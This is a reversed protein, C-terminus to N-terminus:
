GIAERILLNIFEFPPYGMDETLRPYLSSETMGPVTNIENFYINGSVDVFFDLRAMSRLNIAESLTRAMDEIKLLLDTKAVGHSIKPGRGGYKREYSYFKRESRVIGSASLRREGGVFILACEVELDIDVLREILVRRGGRAASIYAPIFDEEKLIPSAGISSGLTAPKIFMPYGLKQEARKKARLICERECGMDWLWDAGRIGLSDAVLRTYIKDACLASSGVGEGVFPIGCARLAGTIVGDEGLEGHLLPIACDIKMIRGETLMGSTGHLKVPYTPRANATPSNGFPNQESIYWAGGPSIYVPVVDYEDRSIHPYIAAASRKSIHREEGEGGYILAVTKKM